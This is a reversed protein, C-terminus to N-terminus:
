QTGYETISEPAFFEFTGTAAGTSETVRIKMKQSRNSFNNNRTSVMYYDGTPTNADTCCVVGQKFAGSVNNLLPDVNDGTNDAADEASSFYGQTALVIKVDAASLIEDEMPRKCTVADFFSAYQDYPMPYSNRLASMEMINSRDSGGRGEGADGAQGDGAPNGNNHTNSGGWQFHVCQGQEMYFDNPEFDYEVAPFTQVINGRKGQVNVNLLNQAAVQSQAAQPSNGDYAPKQMINFSHSRDSFARGRQATNIALRFGQMYTGIDVTPNQTIPSIVGNAPDNNWSSNTAYPDYDMTSINYRLRMVGRVYSVAKNTGGDQAVNETYTHCKWGDPNTLAAFNPIWWEYSDTQGGKATGDVNGLHNAQSWNQENCLAEAFAANNAEGWSTEVWTGDAATCEAEDNAAIQDDDPLDDADGGTCTGKPSVNQSFPAIDTKCYEVDNGLWAVDRWPAPYTWPYYDREEPCELGNRNGNPNQRTYKQSSGKLKQDALFLGNNRDRNQCMAYFEESEHRGRNNDNNNDYTNDVNDPDNTEDPTGTNGGNVINMRIGLGKLTKAGFNNNNGLDSESTDCGFQIVLNCNNMANGCGHQATWTMRLLSGEQFVMNYQEDQLGAEPSYMTNFDAYPQNGNFGNQDDLDIVNYGGRNNNQSDFLRNANNRNASKENLRNNSGRPNHLYVDAQTSLTLFIIIERLYIMTFIFIFTSESYTKEPAKRM